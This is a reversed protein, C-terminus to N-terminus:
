SLRVRRQAANRTQPNVLRVEIEHLGPPVPIDFARVDRVEGEALRADDVYIEVYPPVEDSQANTLTVHLRNERVYDFARASSCVENAGCTGGWTREMRALQARLRAEEQPRGLIRAVDIAAALTPMDIADAAARVLCANAAPADGRRAEFRARDLYYPQWEAHNTTSSTMEIRSAAARDNLDLAARARTVDRLAGPEALLPAIGKLPQLDHRVAYDVLPEIGHQLQKPEFAKRDLEELIGRVLPEDSRDIREPLMSLLAQPEATRRQADFTKIRTSRLAERLMRYESFLGQAVALDRLSHRADATQPANAHLWKFDRTLQWMAVHMRAFFQPDRMLPAAAQLVRRRDSENLEYWHFLGARVFGADTNIRNPALHKAHAYSARWLELRRPSPTDLSADALQSAAVWDTPHEALWSGLQAPDDPATADRLLEPNTLVVALSIVMVAAVVLLLTQRMRVTM